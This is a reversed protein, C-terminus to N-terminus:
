YLAMFAAQRGKDKRRYSFFSHECITCIGSVSIQRDPIGSLAFLCANAQGLDLFARGPQDSPTLLTELVGPLGDFRRKVETLVPGDVEYHCVGAGPGVSAILDAPDSGFAETMAEVLAGAMNRVTGKWGAHALGIATKKPDLVYLPLCDAHVTMLMLGPENTIQGDGRVSKVSPDMIGVGADKITVRKVTTGHVQGLSSWSEPPIGIASALRRRNERIAEAEDGSSYSINLTDYPARSVGGTRASFGHKVPGAEALFSDEMWRIEDHNRWGWHDVQWNRFTM